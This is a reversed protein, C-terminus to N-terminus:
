LSKIFKRSTDTITVPVSSPGSIPVNNNSLSLSFQENGEIIVDSNASVVVSQM